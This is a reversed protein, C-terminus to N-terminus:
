KRLLVSQENMLVMPIQYGGRRMKWDKALEYMSLYSEDNAIDKKYSTWSFRRNLGYADENNPEPVISKYTRTTPIGIVTKLFVVLLEPDELNMLLTEENAKPEWSSWVLTDFSVRSKHQWLNAPPLETYAPTENSQGIFKTRFALQRQFHSPHPLVGAQSFLHLATSICGGGTFDAPNNLPGFRSMPVNPHTVFADLANYFDLCEKQTVEIGITASLRGRRLVKEFEYKEIERRTQLYGDTFTSMMATYGWGNKLMGYIQGKTEGTMAAVGHKLGNPTQCKWGFMVHGLVNQNGDAASEILTRRLTEASALDIAPRPLLSTIILYNKGDNTQQDLTALQHPWGQNLDAMVNENAADAFNYAFFIAVFLISFIRLSM